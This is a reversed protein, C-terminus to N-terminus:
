AVLEEGGSELVGSMPSRTTRSNEKSPVNERRTTVQNQTGSWPYRRCSLVHNQLSVTPLLLGLRRQRQQGALRRRHARRRPQQLARFAPRHEDETRSRQAPIDDAGTSPVTRLSFSGTVSPLPAPGRRDGALDGFARALRHGRGGRGVREAQFLQPGEGRGAHQVDREGDSGPGEPDPRVGGPGEGVVSSEWYSDEVEPPAPPPHRQGVQYGRQAASGQEGGVLNAPPMPRAAQWTGLRVAM